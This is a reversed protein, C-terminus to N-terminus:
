QNFYPVLKKYLADALKKHGYNNLHGHGLKVNIFGRMPKENKESEQIDWKIDLYVIGAQRCENGIALDAAPSNEIAPYCFLFVRAGHKEAETNFLELIKGLKKKSAEPVEQNKVVSVMEEANENAKSKNLLDGNALFKKFLYTRSYVSNYFVSKSRASLNLKDIFNQRAPMDFNSILTDGKMTIKSANFDPNFIDHPNLQIIVFSHELEPSIKKYFAFYELIHRGSRGLNMIEVKKDPRSLMDELSNEYVQDTNVQLAETFSNGFIIGSKRGPETLDYNRDLIGLKNVQRIGYGEETFIKVSNPIHGFASKAQDYENPSSLNFSRLSVECLAVSICVAFFYLLGKKV